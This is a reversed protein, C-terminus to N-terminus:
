YLSRAIPLPWQGNPMLMPRPWYSYLMKYLAVIGNHFIEEVGPCVGVGLHGGNNAEIQGFSSKRRCARHPALARWKEASIPFTSIPSAKLLGSGPMLSKKKLSTDEPGRLWSPLSHAHSSEEWPLSYDLWTKWSVVLPKLFRVLLLWIILSGEWWIHM